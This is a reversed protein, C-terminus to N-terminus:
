AVNAHRWCTGAAARKYRTVWNSGLQKAETEDGDRRETLQRAISSRGGDGDGGHQRDRRFPKGAKQQYCGTNKKQYAKSTEGLAARRQNQRSLCQRKKKEIRTKALFNGGRWTKM